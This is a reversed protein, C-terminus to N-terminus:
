MTENWFWAAMLEGWQRWFMDGIYEPVDQFHPLFKSIEYDGSGDWFNEPMEWNGNNHIEAGICRAVVYAMGVAIGRSIPADYDSFRSDFFNLSDPQMREVIPRLITRFEQSTIQKKRDYTYYKADIYNEIFAREYDDSNDWNKNYIRDIDSVNIGNITLSSGTQEVKLQESLSRSLTGNKKIIVFTAFASATLLLAAMLIIITKKM